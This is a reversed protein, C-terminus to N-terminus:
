FDDVDAYRVPEDRGDIWDEFRCGLSTPFYVWEEGREKREDEVPDDTQGQYLVTLPDFAHVDDGIRLAILADNVNATGAVRKMISTRESSSPSRAACIFPTGDVTVRFAFKGKPDDYWAEVNTRRTKFWEAFDEILSAM